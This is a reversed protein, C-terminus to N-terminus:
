RSPRPRVAAAPSGGAPAEVARQGGGGGGGGGGDAPGGGARPGGDTGPAGAAGQAGGGATAGSGAPTDSGATAAATVDGGAAAAPGAQAEAGAPARTGPAGAASPARTGTDADAGAGAGTAAGGAPSGTDADGPVDEVSPEGLADLAAQAQPAWLPSFYPNTRLAEELHRRAAGTRDLGQEIVGRHFAYLADRVGGGKTSDMAATAFKLAEEDQGARHLAWGLADAVPIGPQRRWEARLRRVA